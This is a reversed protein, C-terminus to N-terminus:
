NGKAGDCSIAKQVDAPTALHNKELLQAVVGTVHPCAMSTGVTFTFFAFFAFFSSSPLFPINM